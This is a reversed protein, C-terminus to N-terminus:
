GKVGYLAFSSYQSWNSGTIGALDITTIASTNQWLGSNFYIIGSGNADFGSLARVTKYKNTNAYDLIDIVSGNFVSATTSNASTALIQAYNTTSVAYATVSSGTGYLSHWAYNNGTDSNFRIYANDDANARATRGIGRIQLHKYTSPISSFTISSSGGAGVTVTAISEYSNSVRPYSSAIIGPIILM